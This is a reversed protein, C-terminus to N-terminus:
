SDFTSGFPEASLTQTLATAGIHSKRCEGITDPPWAIMQSNIQCAGALDGYLWPLMHRMVYAVRVAMRPEHLSVSFERIVIDANRVTRLILVPCLRDFPM